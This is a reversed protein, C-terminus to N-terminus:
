ETSTGPKEPALLGTLADGMEQLSFPKQLLPFSAYGIQLSKRGYGTSFVFPVDRAALKDAVPYSKEGNLNVDLVAADLVGATEIM